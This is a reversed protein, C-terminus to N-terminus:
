HRLGCGCRDQIEVKRSAYQVWLDQVSVWILYKIDKRIIRYKKDIEEIQFCITRMATKRPKTFIIDKIKKVAPGLM